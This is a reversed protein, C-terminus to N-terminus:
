FIFGLEMYGGEVDDSLLYESPGKQMQVVRYGARVYGTRGANLPITYQAGAQADVGQVDDLFIAGARCDWTLTAGNSTSKVYKQLELGTIAADTGISFVAVQGSYSSALLEIRDDVHVWDAFVRVTSGYRRVADYLLGVRHYGHLYKSQVSQGIGYFQQSPGFMIYDSPQGGGNAMFGLGSYRASWNPRFMYKISWTPVALHGPLQLDNGFDAGNTSGGYYGGYNGYAGAYRPWAVSGRLAAFLVGGSIEWRGKGMVPVVGSVYRPGTTYPYTCTPKVKTIGSNYYPCNCIPYFRSRHKVKTIVRTKADAPTGTSGAQPERLIKDPSDEVQAAWIPALWATSILLVLCVLLTYPIRRMM